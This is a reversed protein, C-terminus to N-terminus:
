VEVFPTGIKLAGEPAGTRITPEFRPLLPATRTLPAVAAVAEQDGVEIM